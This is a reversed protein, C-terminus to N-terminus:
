CCSVGGNMADVIEEYLDDRVLLSPVRFAPQGFRLGEFADARYHYEPPRGQIVQRGCADCVNSIATQDPSAYIRRDAPLFVSRFQDSEKGNLLVEELEVRPDDRTLCEAARRDLVMYPINWFMLPFLVHGHGEFDLDLPREARGGFVFDNCKQCRLMTGPRAHWEPMARLFWEADPNWELWM